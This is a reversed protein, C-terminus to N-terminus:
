HPRTVVAQVEGQQHIKSYYVNSFSLTLSIGSKSIETMKKERQTELVGLGLQQRILRAWKRKLLEQVLFIDCEDALTFKSIKYLFSGTLPFLNDGCYLAKLSRKFGLEKRSLMWRIHCLDRKRLFPKVM